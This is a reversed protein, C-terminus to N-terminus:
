MAPLRRMASSVCVHDRAGLCHARALTEEPTGSADVRPWSLPGLDYSEQKQAVAADADSADPERTGVRAVRTALDAHLFMARFPAALVAASREMLEREEPRAFVADVIASHGAALVRRAKDALTAFVRATVPLTYADAGLKEQEQKGFLAKREIDSRLVM